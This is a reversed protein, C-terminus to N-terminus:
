PPWLWWVGLGMLAIFIISYLSRVRYPVSRIPVREKRDPACRDAWWGWVRGLMRRM